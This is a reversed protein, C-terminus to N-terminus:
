ENPEVWEQSFENYYAGCECLSVVQWDDFWDLDGGNTFGASGFDVEDTEGNFEHVHEVETKM